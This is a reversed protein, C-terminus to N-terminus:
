ILQKTKRSTKNVVILHALPRWPKVAVRLNNITSCCHIGPNLFKKTATIATATVTRTGKATIAAICSAIAWGHVTTRPLERTLVKAASTSVVTGTETVAGWNSAKTIVQM